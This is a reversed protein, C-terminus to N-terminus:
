ATFQVPSRSEIFPGILERSSACTSPITPTSRSARSMTSSPPSRWLQRQRRATRPRRGVAMSRVEPLQAALANVAEGIREVQDAPADPKLQFTVVHHLMRRGYCGGSASRTMACLCGDACPGAPTASDAQAHPKQPRPFSRGGTVFERRWRSHEAHRRPPRGGPPQVSPIPPLCRKVWPPLSRGAHARLSRSRGIRGAHRGPEQQDRWRAQAAIPASDAPRQANRQRERQRTRRRFRAPSRGQTPENTGDVTVRHARHGFAHWRCAGSRGVGERACQSSAM